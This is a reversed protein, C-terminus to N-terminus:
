FSYFSRAVIVIFLGVTYRGVASEREIRYRTAGPVRYEVCVQREFVDWVLLFFFVDFSLCRKLGVHKCGM